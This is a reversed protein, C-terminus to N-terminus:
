DHTNSHKLALTTKNIALHNSRSSSAKYIIKLPQNPNIIKLSPIEVPIRKMSDTLICIKRKISNQPDFLSYVSKGLTKKESSRDYNKQIEAFMQHFHSPYKQRIGGNNLLKFSGTCVATGSLYVGGTTHIGDTATKGEKERLTAIDDNIDWRVDIYDHPYIKGDKHIPWLLLAYNIKDAHITPRPHSNGLLKQQYIQPPHIAGTPWEIYMLRTMAARYKLGNNMSILAIFPKGEMALTYKSPDALPTGMFHNILDNELTANPKLRFVNKVKAPEIVKKAFLIEETEKRKNERIEKLLKKRQEQSQRKNDQYLQMLAQSVTDETFDTM